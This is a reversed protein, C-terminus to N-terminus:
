DDNSYQWKVQELSIRQKEDDLIVFGGDRMDITITVYKVHRPNNVWSWKPWSKILGVLSAITETLDEHWVNGEVMAKFEESPENENM